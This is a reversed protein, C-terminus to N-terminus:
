QADYSLQQMNNRFKSKGNNFDGNPYVTVRKKSSDHVQFSERQRFLM